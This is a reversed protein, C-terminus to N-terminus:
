CGALIRGRWARERQEETPANGYNFHMMNLQAQAAFKKGDPAVVLVQEAVNKWGDRVPFDPVLTLGIGSLQFREEVTLLEIPKM